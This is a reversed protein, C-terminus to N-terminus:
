LRGFVKFRTVYQQLSRVNLELDLEGNVVQEEYQQWFEKGGDLSLVIPEVDCMRKQLPKIHLCLTSIRAYLDKRFTHEKVMKKLDRHTAFVFKCNVEEDKTGGVRRLVKEQLVRLLKAQMVLPMEGIEDLFLVGDRASHILGERSSDAGTFAGRVYGFLESEILTEPFGACNLAKIEGERAAIQSKAVIEKGTGTEGEILVEYPTVSVLSARRKMELTDPDKTIFKQLHLDGRSYRDRLTYVSDKVEIFHPMDFKKILSEVLEVFEGGNALLLILKEKSPPRDQPKIDSM